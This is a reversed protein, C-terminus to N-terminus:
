LTVSREKLVAKTNEIWEDGGIAEALLVIFRKVPIAEQGTEAARKRTKIAEAGECTPCDSSALDPTKAVQSNTAIPIINRGHRQARAAFESTALKDGGQSGCCEKEIQLDINLESCFATITKFAESDEHCSHQFHISKGGLKSEVAKRQEGSLNQIIHATLDDVSVDQLNKETTDALTRRVGTQCTTCAAQVQSVNINREQAAAIVRSLNVGNIRQLSRDPVGMKECPLGCCQDGKGILLTNQNTMHVLYVAAMASEGALDGCGLWLLLTERAEEEHETSNGAIFIGEGRDCPVYSLPNYARATTNLPYKDLVFQPVLGWENLKGVVKAATPIGLHRRKGFHRLGFRKMAKMGIERPLTRHKVSSAVMVEKIGKTGDGTNIKVPCPADKCQGCETCAQLLEHLNRWIEKPLPTTPSLNMQDIVMMLIELTPRIKAFPSWFKGEEPTHEHCANKCNGCRVCSEIVEATHLVANAVSPGYPTNEAFAPDERYREELQAALKRAAQSLSFVNPTYTDAIAPNDPDLGGPHIVNHPDNPKTYEDRTQRLGGILGQAYPDNKRAMSLALKLKALGLGHEGSWVGGLEVVKKFIGTIGETGTELAEEALELMELYQPNVPITVHMNGDAFHGFSCIRFPTNDFKRTSDEDYCYKAKIKPDKKIEKWRAQYLPDLQDLHDLLQDLKEPPVVVDENLKAGTQASIAQVGVKRYNWPNDESYTIDGDSDEAHQKIVNELRELIEPTAGALEIGFSSVPVRDGENLQGTVQAILGDWQELQLIRGQNNPINARENQLAKILARWKPTDYAQIFLSKRHGPLEHLAWQIDTIVGDTGESQVGPLGKLLKNTVDKALEDKRIEHGKLTIEKPPTSGDLSTIQFVVEQDATIRGTIPLPATRRIEFHRGQADLFRWALVNDIAGGYEYCMPGAAGEALNGGVTSVPRSAPDVTLALNKNALKAKKDVNINIAGAQTWISKQGTEEDTEVEEISDMRETSVTIMREHLPVCGGTFGVGGGRPILHYALQPDNKAIRNALRIMQQLETSNEPYFVAIPTECRVNSADSGYSYRRNFNWEIRSNPLDKGFIASLKRAAAHEQEIFEIQKKIQDLITDAKESVEPNNRVLDELQQTVGALSGHATENISANHPNRIGMLAKNLLGKLFGERDGQVDEFGLLYWTTLFHTITELQTNLAKEQESLEQDEEKEPILSPIEFKPTEETRFVFKTSVFFDSTSKLLNM